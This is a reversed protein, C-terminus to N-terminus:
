GSPLTFPESNYPGFALTQSRDSLFIEAIKFSLGPGSMGSVTSWVLPQPSILSYLAASGGGDVIAGIEETKLLVTKTRHGRCFGFQTEDLM